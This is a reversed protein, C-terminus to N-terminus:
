ERVRDRRESFIEVFAEGESSEPERGAGIPAGEPPVVIEQRLVERVYQPRELSDGDDADDKEQEGLLFRVKKRLLLGDYEKDRHNDGKLEADAHRVPVHEDMGPREVEARRSAVEEGVQCCM